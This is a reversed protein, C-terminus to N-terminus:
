DSGKRVREYYVRRLTIGDDWVSACEELSRGKIQCETLWSDRAARFYETSNDSNIAFAFAFAIVAMVLTAIAAAGVVSWGQPFASGYGPEIVTFFREHRDCFRDIQEQPM